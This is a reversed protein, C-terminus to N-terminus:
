TQKNRWGLEGSLQSAADSVARIMTTLDNPARSVPLSLGISAQALGSPDFVPATIALVDAAGESVSKAYGQQRVRQLERRLLKKSTITQPAVKVLDGALLAQEIEPPGFAALVKGSAGAHLPRRRGITTQVRVDHASRTQLVNVSELGNRILVSATENFQAVLADLYKQALQTLGVQEQAALGLILAQPGLVYAAANATRLVFGSAEFTALFRFTRAKTLGVRRGYESVGLGPNNAVALLVKLADTVADVTYNM